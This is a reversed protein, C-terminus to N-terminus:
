GRNRGVNRASNKGTISMTVVQVPHMASTIARRLFCCCGAEEGTEEERGAESTISTYGTTKAELTFVTARIPTFVSVTRVYNNFRLKRAKGERFYIM